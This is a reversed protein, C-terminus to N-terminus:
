ATTITFQLAAALLECDGTATDNADSTVRNTRIFLLDGAAMSDVSACSFSISTVIGAASGVTVGAGDQNSSDFSLSDVDITDTGGTIAYFEADLIVKGTTASAMAFEYKMIPSGSYNVPLRCQWVASEMTTADFLLKWAGQGGEIQAGAGTIYAGTVKASQVPFYITGSAM